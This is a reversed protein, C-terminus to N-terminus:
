KRRRPRGRKKEIQQPKEKIVESETSNIFYAKVIEIFTQYSGILRRFAQQGTSDLGLVPNYYRSLYHNPFAAFFDEAFLNLTFKQLEGLQNLIEINDAESDRTAQKTLVERALLIGKRYEEFRSLDFTGSDDFSAKIPITYYQNDKGRFEIQM